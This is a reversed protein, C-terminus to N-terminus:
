LSLEGAEEMILQISYVRRVRHAIIFISSGLQEQLEVLVCLGGIQTEGTQEKKM